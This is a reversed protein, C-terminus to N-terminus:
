LLHVSFFFLCVEMENSHMRVVRSLKVRKGTRVNTVYNGKKAVGQYVRLYTLQGFRGEELKFALGVLTSDASPTLAVKAEERTVDLAEIPVESPNPLFKVVADMLPQIGTNKYASGMMVPTFKRSLTARRVGEQM